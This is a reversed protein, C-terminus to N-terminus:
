QTCAFRKLGQDIRTYRILVVCKNFIAFLAMVGDRLVECLQHDHPHVTEPIPMTLETLLTEVAMDIVSTNKTWMTHLRAMQINNGSTERILLGGQVHVMLLNCTCATVLDMLGVPGARDLGQGVCLALTAM